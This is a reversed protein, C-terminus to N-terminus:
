NYLTQYKENYEERQKTLYDLNYGMYEKTYSKQSFTKKIAKTIRPIIDLQIATGKENLQKEGWINTKHKLNVKYRIKPPFTNGDFQTVGVVVGDIKIEFSYVDEKDWISSDNDRNKYSLHQNDEFFQLYECSREKLFSPIIGYEGWEGNNTGAISNLLEKMELSDIVDENFNHINFFRQCIINGNINLVFEFPHQESKNDRM